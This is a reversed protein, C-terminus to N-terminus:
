RLAGWPLEGDPGLGVMLRELGSAVALLGGLEFRLVGQPRPHLATERLPYSAKVEAPTPIQPQRARVELLEQRRGGHIHDPHNGPEPVHRQTFTPPLRAVKGLQCGM